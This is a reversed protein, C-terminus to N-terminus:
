LKFLNMTKAEVIHPPLKNRDNVIRISFFNKRVNLNFSRKLYGSNIQSYTEIVNWMKIVINM